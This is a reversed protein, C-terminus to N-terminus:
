ENDPLASLAGFPTNKWDCARLLIPIVRAAGATQRRLAREMESDWCSPSALFDASVLLLIMQAAEIHERIEAEWVDGAEVQRDYWAHILGQRQLPALHAVLEELASEDNRAYAIFVDIAVRSM